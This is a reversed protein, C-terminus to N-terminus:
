LLDSNIQHKYKNEIIDTKNFYESTAFDGNYDNIIIMIHTYSINYNYCYQVDTWIDNSLKWNNM